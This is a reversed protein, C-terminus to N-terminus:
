LSQKVDLQQQQKKSAHNSFHLCSSFEEKKNGKSCSFLKTSNAGFNIKSRKQKKKHLAAWLNYYPKNFFMKKKKEKYLPNTVKNNFLLPLSFFFGFFFWSFLLFPM